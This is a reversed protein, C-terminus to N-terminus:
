YAQIVTAKSTTTSSTICYITLRNGSENTASIPLNIIGGSEPLMFGTSTTVNSKQSCYIKNTLDLNQIVLVARYNMLISSPDIQTPTISSVTIVNVTISSQLVEQVDTGVAHAPKFFATMLIIGLLIKKM